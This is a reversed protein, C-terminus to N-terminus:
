SPIKMVNSPNQNYTTGQYILIHFITGEGEKGIEGERGEGAKRRGM